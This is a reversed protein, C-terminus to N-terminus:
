PHPPFDGPPPPPLPSPPAPSGPTPGGNTPPDAPPPPLPAWPLTMTKHYHGTRSLLMMNFSMMTSASQAPFARAWVAIKGLKWPEKPDTDMDEPVACSMDEAGCDAAESIRAPTCLM